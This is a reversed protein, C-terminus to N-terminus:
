LEYLCKDLYVQPYLQGDKEFVSRIVVTMNHFKLTKNLSLNDDSNFKIKMFDKGYKGEKGDSITEIENKIVYWRATYKKLAENNENVSNFFLYKSGSKEKIYGDVESIIM